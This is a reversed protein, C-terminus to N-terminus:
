KVTYTVPTSKAVNGASDVEVVTATHSGAPETVQTNMAAFYNGIKTGDIWLELHNVSGSAGTGAAEFTVPSNVDQGATPSCVNVGPTSPAACPGSGVKINVVNSKV